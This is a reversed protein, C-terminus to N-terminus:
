AFKRKKKKSQKRVPIERTPADPLDLMLPLERTPASPLDLIDERKRKKSSKKIQEEPSIYFLSRTQSWDEVIQNVLDRRTDENEEFDEFGLTFKGERFNGEFVSRTNAIRDFLKEWNLQNAVKEGLKEKVENYLVRGSKEVNKQYERKDEKLMEGREKHIGILKRLQKLNIGRAKGNVVYMKTNKVYEEQQKNTPNLQKVFLRLKEEIEELEEIKAENFEFEAALQMGPSTEALQKEYNESFIKELNYNVPKRKRKGKLEKGAELIQLQLNDMDIDVEDEIEEDEESSKREEFTKGDGDGDEDNIQKWAIQESLADDIQENLEEIIQKNPDKKSLEKNLEEELAKQEEEARLIRDRIQESQTAIGKVYDKLHETMSKKGWGVRDARKPDEFWERFDTGKIGRKELMGKTEAEERLKVLLGHQQEKKNALKEYELEEKESLTGYGQWYDWSDKEQDFPLVLGKIEKGDSDIDSEDSVYIWRNGDYDLVQGTYLYEDNSDEQDALYKITVWTGDKLRKKKDKGALLKKKRLDEFRKQENATMLENYNLFGLSRQNKYFKRKVGDKIKNIELIDKLDEESEMEDSSFTNSKKDKPVYDGMKKENKKLLKKLFDLKQQVTRRKKRVAETVKGGKLNKKQLKKGERVVSRIDRKIVKNKDALSLRQIRMDKEYRELESSSKQEPTTSSEIDM